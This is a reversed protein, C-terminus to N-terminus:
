CILFYCSLTEIVFFSSRTGLRGLFIFIKNMSPFFKPFIAILSKWYQYASWALILENFNSCINYVLQYFMLFPIWFSTPFSELVSMGSNHLNKHFSNRRKKSFIFVCIYSYKWCNKTLFCANKAELFYLFSCDQTFHSCLMYKVLTLLLVTESNVLLVWIYSNDLIKSM